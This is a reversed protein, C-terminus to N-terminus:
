LALGHLHGMLYCRADAIDNVLRMLRLVRAGESQATGAGHWVHFIFPMRTHSHNFELHLYCHYGGYPVGLDSCLNRTLNDSHHLRISEEHNGTCLLLIRDKIPTFLEVIFRRQSEVINDQKVWGALSKSDFRKDDRTICDAYDGMGIM